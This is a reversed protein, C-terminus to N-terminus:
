HDRSKPAAPGGVLLVRIEVFLKKTGSKQRRKFFDVTVVAHGNEPAIDSVFDFKHGYGAERGDVSNAPEGAVVILRGM